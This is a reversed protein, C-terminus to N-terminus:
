CTERGPETSNGNANVAVYAKLEAWVADVYENFRAAKRALWPGPREVGFDIVLERKIEAPRASLVIVRDSMAVAEVVDHTVLITTRRSARLARWVEEQITTRTQYDLASFPEDLLFIEPEVALTRVLAVRQRMGGSLEQPHHHLFHGLGYNELLAEVKKERETRVEKMLELGLLANERVTRWPLLYDQQLMYGVRTSHLGAREGSVLIDGATPKLLGAILSLITSKGCGSPGVIAVFEGAAIGLNIGALAPIEGKPTQYTVSVDRLEVAPVVGTRKGGDQTM